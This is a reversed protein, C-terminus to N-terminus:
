LNFSIIYFLIGFIVAQVLDTGLLVIFQIKNLITRVLASNVIYFLLTYLLTKLAVDKNYIGLDGSRYGLKSQGNFNERLETDYELPFNPTQNGNESMIDDIKTIM